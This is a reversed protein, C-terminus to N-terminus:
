DQLHARVAKFASEIEFRINSRTELKAVEAETFWDIGATEADNKRISLSSTPELLYLFGVHQECGKKWKEVPQYNKGDQLRRQYNEKCVWHVNILFPVPAYASNESNEETLPQMHGAHVSIGTEEFFEREAAQHPLENPEIHGGPNLWIGLKKHKVLLVRGDHILVGAATYCLKPTLSIPLQQM